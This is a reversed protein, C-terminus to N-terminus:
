AALHVLRDASLDTRSLEGSVRGDRMVVARDAMGVVEDTESSIMIVAGGASAFDSMVRYIERKAGVDVGRTPEDLLLVKPATLFWKGLVVKQQNGGSLGAVELRDSATKIRFRDIMERASQSERRGSMVPGVGLFPLHAMCINDRVSASLVLGSGKRDETVFALGLRIAEAPSSVSIKRGDLVVEGGRDEVLGFLREFIESRGSGMLGFIALIEGRRVEFSVDRVHNTSNLGRVSLLTEDGPTNTKVFEERLPRGVIMQILQERSVNAMSGSDVFAGDRFVTFTDAIQFIESLRHSVYIIGKGKRKLTRIAAFLQDAEAEGLASTPEDMIIIEADYSLAKAIEVLQLKAVNLNMMLTRADIDFHLDDLLSQAMSNMSRFDIRGFGALPERGLFINEAVSMAPVPSLEQEIISIGAALAERPSRFNVEAGNRRIVGSDRAQIGMIISLLTSKGAGNGGCLAHVSGRELAFSGNSLAAVGGFSKTVGGVELLKPQM